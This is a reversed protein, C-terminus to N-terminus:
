STSRDFLAGELLRGLTHKQARHQAFPFNMPNILTVAATSDTTFARHSNLCLATEQATKGQHWIHSPSYQTDLGLTPSMAGNSCIHSSFCQTERLWKVMEVDELIETEWCSLDHNPRWPSTKNAKKPAAAETVWRKTCFLSVTCPRARLTSNTDGNFAAQSSQLHEQPTQQHHRM